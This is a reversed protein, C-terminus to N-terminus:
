WESAQLRRRAAEARFEHGEQTLDAVVADVAATLEDPAHRTLYEEVARRYLESRSVSMREALRDARRFLDDPLSIATKMGPTYGSLPGREVWSARPSYVIYSSRLPM